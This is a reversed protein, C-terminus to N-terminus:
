EVSVFRLSILSENSMPQFGQVDKQSAYLNNPSYLFLIPSDQILIEQLENYIEHRAEYETTTRGEVLLEDVKTNSYNFKNTSGNTEFTRFLQKDPSVSGSNLSVFSDFDKEKWKKIFIGWEVMDLNAKVGVSAFQAQLAQAIKDFNYKASVTISFEFGNPYGAEALLQKAKAPNYSFEEDVPVAWAKVTPNMIGTITGEGFGVMKIIMERNVAYSLARRVKPDNLPAVDNNIGLLYYSLVPQRYISFGNTLMNLSLPENLKSIDVDGNKLASVRSVEKPIIIFRLEDLKPLGAMYYKDNKVLSIYNGAEYDAIAFPGTGNTELQMNKGSEVFAKSVIASNVGAFNPLLANVSPTKLKFEINKEGVVKISEVDAYYSAAPSGFDPDTIREFSFIVDDATMKTGDHFYVDNRLTFVVTYADKVEYSEALNAILQMNEDYRLLGDYVNELIRHSAFATVQHPDLGVPETEIAFKLIGNSFTFSVLLVLVLGFFLSKKM